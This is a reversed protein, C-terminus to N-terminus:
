PSDVGAGAPVPVIAAAVALAALTAALSYFATAYSGTARACWAFLLPGDGLCVRDPGAGGGSDTRPAHSRLRTGWFSFFVVMVFGGRSM